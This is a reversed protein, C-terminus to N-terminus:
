SPGAGRVIGLVLALVGVWAIVSIAVAILLWRARSTM